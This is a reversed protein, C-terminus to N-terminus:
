NQTSTVCNASSKKAARKCHHTPEESCKEGPWEIQFRELDGLNSLQEMKKLKRIINRITSIPRKFCESNKYSEGEQHLHVMKM